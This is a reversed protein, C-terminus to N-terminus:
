HSKCNPQRQQPLESSYKQKTLKPRAILNYQSIIDEAGKFRDLDGDWNKLDATYMTEIKSRIRNLKRGLKKGPAGTFVVAIYLYKGREVLINNNKFELRKLSWNEDEMNGHAFSDRTFDQVATFMASIIDADTEERQVDENALHFIMCGNCYILFLEVIDYNGRYNRYAFGVIGLVMIIVIVILISFEFLLSQETKSRGTVELLIKQSSEANGDSVYLTVTSTLPKTAYFIVDSGHIEFDIECDELRIELQTVNNDVDFLYPYLDLRFKETVNFRQIPIELLIPPDNVALVKVDLVGEAIALEPDIARFTIVESGSWNPESGLDLSGNVNIQTTVKNNNIVKFYLM